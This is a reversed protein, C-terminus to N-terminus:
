IKLVYLLFEGNIETSIALYYAEKDKNAVQCMKSFFFAVAHLM